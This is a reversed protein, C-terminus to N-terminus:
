SGAARKEVAEAARRGAAGIFDALEPESGIEIGEGRDLADFGEAAMSRLSALKEDDERAQRELLSLGARMVESASTFRGSMVLQNVFEEYHGSLDVNHTPM